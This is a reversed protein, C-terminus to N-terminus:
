IQEMQYATLIVKKDKKDRKQEESDDSEINNGPAFDAKVRRTYYERRRIAKLQDESLQQTAQNVMSTKKREDEYTFKRKMRELKDKENLNEVSQMPNISTIQLSM